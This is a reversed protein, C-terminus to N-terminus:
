KGFHPEHPFAYNPCFFRYTGGPKLTEEMQLLVSYPDNLHKMVNVSFIFDFNDHFSCEEIPAQILNLDLGEEKAIDM